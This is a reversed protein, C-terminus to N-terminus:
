CATSSTAAWAGLWRAAAAQLAHPEGSGLLTVKGPAETDTRLAGSELLRNVQRAVPEGTELIGVGDGVLRQFTALAFPYHTCGLVLTDIQGPEHGLAGLAQVYRACLAEVQSADDREIAAALGDCPQLRIDAGPGLSALLRKFKDSALTGRTALVGVRGTRSAQVAPKLAPEVGVIPLDPWSARMRAIAAATATNCAVVLLKIRHRAILEGAIALSREIVHDETREGYPAHGTDAFYVFDEAPLAARLARLISLGGIGSDFVGIPARTGSM